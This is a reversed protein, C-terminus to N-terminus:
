LLLPLASIRLRAFIDTFTTLALALVAAAVSELDIFIQRRLLSEFGRARKM